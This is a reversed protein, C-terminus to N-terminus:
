TPTRPTPVEDQLFAETDLVSGGVASKEAAPQWLRLGALGARPPNSSALLWRSANTGLSNRTHRHLLGLHRGIRMPASPHRADVALM